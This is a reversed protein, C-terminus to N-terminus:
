LRENLKIVFKQLNDIHSGHWYVKKCDSCSWFDDIRNFIENPINESIQEKDIQDLKGNCLPCRSTSSNIKGKEMKFKKFIQYVQDVEENKTILVYPLNQKKTSNVLQEDKTIIIRNENKAQRILEADNITPSYSSDYGLFRLKKAINGLMADVIFLPEKNQLM